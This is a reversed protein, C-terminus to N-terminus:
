LRLEALAEPVDDEETDDKSWAEWLQEDWLEYKNGQGILLAKKGLQAHQRLPQTLSLRGTADIEMDTAYGVVRRQLRKVLKNYSPLENIKQEVIEWENLPYLMLCDQDAAITVVLQGDCIESLRERIRAPLITRGKADITLSSAGRFNQVKGLGNFSVLHCMEGSICM